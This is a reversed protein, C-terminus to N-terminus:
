SAPRNLGMGDRVIEFLPRGGFAPGRGAVIQRKLVQARVGLDRAVDGLIATAGGPVRLVVNTRRNRAQEAPTAWRVNSPEYPGDNDIRDLTLGPAWSPGMDLLFADFGERWRDCVVM